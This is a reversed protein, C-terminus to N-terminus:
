CWGQKKGGDYSRALGTAIMVGAVDVGNVFVQKLERGYRDHGSGSMTVTGSALLASLKETAENGLRAEEACRSPHTEPADMGAIRIREPGIAFTDGDIITLRDNRAGSARPLGTRSVGQERVVTPIEQIAEGQEEAPSAIVPSAETARKEWEVDEADPARTPVAQVANWEIAAAPPGSGAARSNWWQWGLGGAVGAVLMTLVLLAMRGRSGVSNARPMYAEPRGWPGRIIEGEPRWHRSM